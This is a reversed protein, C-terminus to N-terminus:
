IEEAFGKELKRFVSIGIFFIVISELLVLGLMMMDPMTKSYFIARYSNIITTMPNLNLIWAKSGFLDSQYLIPTAYFAM